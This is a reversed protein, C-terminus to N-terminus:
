SPEISLPVYGSTRHWLLFACAVLSVFGCCLSSTISFACGSALTSSIMLLAAAYHLGLVFLVQKPKKRAYGDLAVVMSFTHLVLFGLSALVAALFFPVEPCGELYYTAAGLTPTLLALFFMASHALGHGLGSALYISLKDLASLKAKSQKEALADLASETFRCLRWYIWRVSEQVSVSLLLLFVLLPSSGEAVLLLKAPIGILMLTLLWFFASALVVILLFPKRLVTGLLVGAPGLGILAYGCYSLLTM